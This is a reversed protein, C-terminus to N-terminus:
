FELICVPLCARSRALVGRARPKSVRDPLPVGRRKLCPWRKCGSCLLCLDAVCCSCATMLSAVAACDGGGSGFCRHRTCARRAPRLHPPGGRVSADRLAWAAATTAWERRPLCHTPVRERTPLLRRQEAASAAVTCCFCTWPCCSATGGRGACGRARVCCAVGCHQRAVRRSLESTSRSLCCSEAEEIARRSSLAPQTLSSRRSSIRQPRLCPCQTLGSCSPACTAALRTRLRGM